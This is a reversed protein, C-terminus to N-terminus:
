SKKLVYAGILALTLLIVSYLNNGIEIEGNIVEM